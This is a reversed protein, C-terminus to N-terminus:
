FNRTELRSLCRSSATLSRYPLVVTIGGTRGWYDMTRTVVVSQSVVNARISPTVDLGDEPTVSTSYAFNYFALWSDIPANLYDRASGALGVRPFATLAALGCLLATTALGPTSPRRAPAVVNAARDDDMNNDMGHSV